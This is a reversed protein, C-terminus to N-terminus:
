KAVAGACPVPSSLPLLLLLQSPTHTCSLQSGAVCPRRASRQQEQIASGNVALSVISFLFNVVRGIVTQWESRVCVRAPVVRLPARARAPRGDRTMRARMM